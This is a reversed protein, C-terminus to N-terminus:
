DGSGANRLMRRMQRDVLLKRVSKRLAGVAEESTVDMRDSSIRQAMEDLSGEKPVLAYVVDCEMAEAVKRLHKVQLTSNMESKELRYVSRPEYGMRLALEAERIGVAERLTRIWSKVESAEKRGLRFGLLIEELRKRAKARENEHIGAM